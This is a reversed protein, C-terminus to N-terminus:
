AVDEQKRYRGRAQIGLAQRTDRWLRLAKSAQRRKPGSLHPWLRRIVEIADWGNCRYTFIPTDPNFRSYVERIKGRGVAKLFRRVVEDDHSQSLAIVFVPYNNRSKNLHTFSSGEGDFLGAAWELEGM